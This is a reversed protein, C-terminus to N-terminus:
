ATKREAARETKRELAARDSLEAECFELVMELFDDFGARRVGIENIWAIVEFDGNGIPASANFAFLTTHQIDAAFPILVPLRSRVRSPPGVDPVPTEAAEIAARALDEYIRLGLNATGFLTAGEFFRPWGDHRRLFKKYSAPLPRGIRKEATSIARGSAARNPKLGFDRFPAIRMLEKQVRLINKVLQIQRDAM